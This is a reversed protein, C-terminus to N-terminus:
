VVSYGFEAAADTLMEWGSVAYSRSFFVDIVEDSVAELLVGAQGFLTQACRGPTFVRSDLDLLCMKALLRRTDLGSVRVVSRGHSLDTIAAVEAPVPGVLRAPLDQSAPAVLLWRGPGVGFMRIDGNLTTANCSAPPLAGCADSRRSPRQMMSPPLKYWRCNTSCRLHFERRVPGPRDMGGNGLGSCHRVTNLCSSTGEPDVFVPDVVRVAVQEQRLPFVAHFVEGEAITWGRAARTRDPPRTDPGVGGVDRSRADRPLPGQPRAVLQAGGRLRTKGDVPVLGVLQPRAVDALAPRDLLHKGIFDPKNMAVLRGLGLDAATTRGDLEAGAVHGKEIRLVGMAETGYAVIDADRGAALLAQWVALGYGAPTNIEYALEGSFSIRFIRTPFGSIAGDLVGMYPLSENSVGAGGLARALVDRSRPGALAMSAWQDTVSAVQVRLAPWVVDLLQELHSMVKGANATTTTMFYQFEGIRATTGDDFVVGDERLMLGYRAKGVPLNGWNNAYVRQLFETADPGQVDIKGLTSVDVLGVANRVHAAERQIAPAPNEGTRPYCRPRLWLGAEVMVAGQAEHWEHMPSRRTPAFHRGTERGALIGMTIPTYPPRFTTTGVQPIPMGRLKAMIALGTVNSTKGQDTGMGLTTYRKLHEVSVYGERRGGPRSTTRQRGRCLHIRCSCAGWVLSLSDAAHEPEELFPHPPVQTGRRELTCQPHPRRGERRDGCRAFIARAFVGSEASAASGARHDRRIGVGIRADGQVRRLVLRRQHLLRGAREQRHDPKRGDVHGDRWGLRAHRSAPQLLSVDGNRLSRCARDDAPKRAACLQQVHGPRRGDGARGQRVPQCFHGAGFTVVTDLFPKLPESVFAQLVHTEIPLRLGLLGAVQGSHGAVAMGVKGAGIYGRNTEVGVVRDGERRFGTVECNQIIDVGQADAARAYGWAVADHRATGGRRQLLGGYIPFRATNFDLMPVMSRVQDRDLWEADIGNLRMANGRRAYADMQADSHALNLVGRQSFMVNYNLEQSLGEWLKLSWEYFRANPGLMYNSRVITTNRGTNGGGLWGKELVAVRSIGHNKALYYATALGHGGGGGIIVVDYGPKPEPDRWARMWGQHHALAQRALSFISYRTM